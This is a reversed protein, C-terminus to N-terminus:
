QCCISQRNGLHFCTFISDEIVYVVVEYHSCKYSRRDRYPDDYRPESRGWRSSGSLPGVLDPHWCCSNVHPSFCQLTEALYESPYMRARLWLLRGQLSGVDIANGIREKRALHTCDVWQWSPVQTPTRRQFQSISNQGPQRCLTTCYTVKCAGM